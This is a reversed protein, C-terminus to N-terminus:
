RLMCSKVKIDRCFFTLLNLSRIVPCRLGATTASHDLTSNEFELLSDSLSGPKFGARLLFKYPRLKCGSYELVGVSSLSIRVVMWLAITGRWPKRALTLRVPRIWDVLFATGWMQYAWFHLKLISSLITLIFFVPCWIASFMQSSSKEKDVKYIILAFVYVCLSHNQCENKM